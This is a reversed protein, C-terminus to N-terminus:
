SADDRREEIGNPNEPAFTPRAVGHAGCIPLLVITRLPSVRGVLGRRENPSPEYSGDNEKEGGEGVGLM